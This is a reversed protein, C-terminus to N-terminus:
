ACMHAYLWIKMSVQFSCRRSVKLHTFTCFGFILQRLYCLRARVISGEFYVLRHETWEQVCLLNSTDWKLHCSCEDNGGAQTKWRRQIEICSRWVTCDSTRGWCAWLCWVACDSRGRWAWLYWVAGLTRENKISVYMVCPKWNQRTMILFFAVGEIRGKWASHYWLSSETRGRWAWLCWVDCEIQQVHLSVQFWTLSDCPVGFLTPNSGVQVQWM